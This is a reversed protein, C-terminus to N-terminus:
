GPVKDLFGHVQSLRSGGDSVAVDFGIVLPEGGRPGLGWSFRVRDHHADVSGLLGFVLEPFQRQVTAITEDIAERGHAEVMPDVYSADETYLEDIMTRRKDAATENWSAIYREVLEQM